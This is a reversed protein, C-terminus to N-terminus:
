PDCCVITFTDLVADGDSKNIVTVSINLLSGGYARFQMQADPAVKIEKNNTLIITSSTLGTGEVWFSNEPHTGTITFKLTISDTIGEIKQYNTNVSINYPDDVNTWDVADPTLDEEEVKVEQMIRAIQRITDSPEYVVSDCRACQYVLTDWGEPIVLWEITDTYTVAEEDRRSEFTTDFSYALGTTDRLSYLYRHKVHGTGTTCQPPDTLGFALSFFAAFFIILYKM